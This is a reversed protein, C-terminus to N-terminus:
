AVVGSETHGSKKYLGLDVKLVGNSLQELEMAALLPVTDGWQYIASKSRNGLAKLIGPRGGFHAEADKTLMADFYLMNSKATM